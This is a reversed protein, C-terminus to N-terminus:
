GKNNITDYGYVKPRIENKAGPNISLLWKRLAKFKLSGIDRKTYKQQSHNSAEVCEPDALVLNECKLKVLMEAALSGNGGIGIHAIRAHRIKEQM